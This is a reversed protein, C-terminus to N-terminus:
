VNYNMTFSIWDLWVWYLGITIFAFSLTSELPHKKYSPHHSLMFTFLYARQLPFCPNTSTGSSLKLISIFLMKLPMSESDIYCSPSGIDELSPQNNESSHVGSRMWSFPGTVPIGLGMIWFSWLLDFYNFLVGGPSDNTTPVRQKSCAM